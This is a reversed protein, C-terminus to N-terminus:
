MSQDKQRSKEGKGNKVPQSKSDKLKWCLFREESGM